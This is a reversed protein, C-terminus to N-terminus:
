VSPTETVPEPAPPPDLRDLIKQIEVLSASFHDYAVVDGAHLAQTQAELERLFKNRMLQKLEDLTM